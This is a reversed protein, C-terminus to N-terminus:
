LFAEDFHRCMNWIESYSSQSNKKPNIECVRCVYGIHHKDGHVFTYFVEFGFNELYRRTVTDTLNFNHDIKVASEISNGRKAVKLIDVIDLYFFGNEKLLSRIKLLTKSISVLHDITQCLLVLDFRRGNMDVNEILGEITEIGRDVSKSAEKSAPDINVKEIHLGTVKHILIDLRSLLVGTSGGVDCVSKLRTLDMVEGLHSLLEETYTVQDDQLTDADIRRKHYASVLPRYYDRYLKILSAGSLQPSLFLLGCSNCLLSKVGHYYRDHTAICTFIEGGCCDCSRIFTKEELEYNYGVREVNDLQQQDLTCIRKM